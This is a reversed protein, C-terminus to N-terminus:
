SSWALRLDFPLRHHCIYASRLKVRSGDNLTLTKTDDLVTNMNEIWLTDVPGDFVIWKRSDSKSEVAKKVFFPVLGENWDKTDPHVFGYLEGLTVAKPNLAFRHVDKFNTGQIGAAAM